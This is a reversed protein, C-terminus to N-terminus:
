RGNIEKGAGSTITKLKFKLQESAYRAKVQRQAVLVTTATHHVHRDIWTPWVSLPPFPLLEAGIPRHGATASTKSRVIIRRHVRVASLHISWSSHEDSQVPDMQQQYVASLPYSLTLTSPSNVVLYTTRIKFGWFLVQTQQIKESKESKKPNKGSKKSKKPNKRIKQTYSSKIFLFSKFM